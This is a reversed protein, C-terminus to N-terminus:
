LPSLPSDSFQQYSYRHYQGILRTKSQLYQQMERLARDQDAASLLDRSLALYQPSIAM